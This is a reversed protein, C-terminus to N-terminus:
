RARVRERGVAYPLGERRTEELVRHLPELGIRWRFSGDSVMIPETPEGIHIELARRLVEAMRVDHKLTATVVDDVARVPVRAVLDEVTSQEVEVEGLAPLVAAIYSLFARNPGVILVGSRNLRERHLYLLYAARHLGVATKGTGPAGQVCISDALDARVLEDQEPQITAVIDRMPGVRPREIEATLIRSATGLEEGRDLHEDEFSTLVGTSFGFRRRVTVGQPDRASARYFSRSVPARWDIVMPEGLEDTVHRRGVHYVGVVEDDADDSHRRDATGGFNLRGFFLPTTPDDALEKVRRAMHRGLQEATYSDGAVKDGTAFLAQARERMRRLAARSSELHARESALEEDLDAPNNSTHAALTM